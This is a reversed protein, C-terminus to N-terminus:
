CPRAPGIQPARWPKSQLAYSKIVGDFKPDPPPPQKPSVTTAAGPSGLGGNVQQAVAPGATAATALLTVVAKALGHTRLMSDENTGTGNRGGGVGPRHWRAMAAVAPQVICLLDRDNASQGIVLMDRDNVIILVPPDVFLAAEAKHIHM